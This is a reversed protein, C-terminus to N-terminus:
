KIPYNIIKFIKRFFFPFCIKKKMGTIVPCIMGAKVPNSKLIRKGKKKRFNWNKLIDMNYKLKL